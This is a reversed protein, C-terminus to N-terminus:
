LDAPNSGDFADPARIHTHTPAPPAPLPTNVSNQGALMLAQVLQLLIDSTNALTTRSPPTERIDSGSHSPHGDTHEEKTQEDLVQPLFDFPSAPSPFPTDNHLFTSHTNGMPLDMPPGSAQLPSLHPVGSDEPGISVYPGLENHAIQHTHHPISMQYYNTTLRFISDLSMSHCKIFDSSSWPLLGFLDMQCHLPGSEPHLHLSLMHNTKGIVVAKVPKSM